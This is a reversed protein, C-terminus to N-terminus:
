ALWRRRFAVAVAHAPNVADLKRCISATHRGIARPGVGFVRAIAVQTQGAAIMQLIRYEHTTLLRDEPRMGQWGEGGAAVCLATCGM